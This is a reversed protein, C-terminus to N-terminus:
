QGGSIFERRIEMLGSLLQESASKTKEYVEQLGLVTKQKALEEMERALELSENDLFTGIVSKLSHANFTLADFDQERINKQIKELRGPLEKEFITIINLIVDKDFYQLTDDLKKRDIM